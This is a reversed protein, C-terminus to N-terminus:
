RQLEGKSAKRKDKVLPAAPTGRYRPNLIVVKHKFLTQYGLIIDRPPSEAVRLELIFTQHGRRWIAEILGLSTLRRSNFDLLQEDANPDDELRPLRLQRALGEAIWNDEVGTDLLASGEHKQEPGTPCQFSLNVIMENADLDNNQIARSEEINKDTSEASANRLPRHSLRDKSITKKSVQLDQSHRTRSSQRHEEVDFNNLAEESEASLSATQLYRKHEGDKPMGGLIYGLDLARRRNLDLEDFEAQRDM